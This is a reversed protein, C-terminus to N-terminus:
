RARRESDPPTREIWRALDEVYTRDYRQKPAYPGHRLVQRAAYGLPVLVALAAGAAMLFSSVFAGLLILVLGASIGAVMLRFPPMRDGSSPTMGGM